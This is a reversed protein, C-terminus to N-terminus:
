ELLPALFDDKSAAKRLSPNLRIADTLYKPADNEELEDDFFVSREALLRALCYLIGAHRPHQGLIAHLEEPSRHLIAQLIRYNLHSGLIEEYDDIQDYSLNDRNFGVFGRLILLPYSPFIEVKDPLPGNYFDTSDCFILLITGLIKYTKEELLKEFLDEVDYTAIGFCDEALCNPLSECIEPLISFDGHDLYELAFNRCIIEPADFDADLDAFTDNYGRDNLASQLNKLHCLAFVFKVLRLSRDDLMLELAYQIDHYYCHGQDIQLWLQKLNPVTTAFYQDACETVFKRFIESQAEEDHIDFIVSEESM